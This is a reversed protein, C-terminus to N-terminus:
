DGFAAHMGAVYGTVFAATINYGGTYGHIDLVEGCFYLGQTLKSQLSKPNVEKLHVGGGTVFGKEIPLSGNVKFRFNTLGEKVAIWNAATLRSVAMQDDIGVKELLFEVYREPLLGKLHNKISKLPAEEVFGKLKADLESASFDPLANLSMVVEKKNEKEQVQHVFSSCRLVAPGSIGFHTFIMDMQHTVVAKGKGNLVSLAVNRLSLARLEGKQIFEESSTLPVETAFLPTITHGAVRAIGYGDGTSGTKPYSKGGTALIVADAQLQEGNDLEVVELTGENVRITKVKVNTRVQVGLKKIDQIFTELITKASDTVPFMRGHDEEKLRVGRSEFFQIIDQNDFQSFASYLFRGNGPIHKVIEEPSRRNTVNCRTGGTHLLKKGLTTNKELLVVEAGHMAASVSAMLGSTGGGIVIVKM